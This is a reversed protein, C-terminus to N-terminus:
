LFQIRAIRSLTLLKIQQLKGTSLGVAIVAHLKLRAEDLGGVTLIGPFVINNELEGSVVVEPKINVVLEYYVQASNVRCIFACYVEM